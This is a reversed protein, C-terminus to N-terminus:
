LKSLKEILDDARAMLDAFSQQLSAWLQTAVETCNPDRRGVLDHLERARELGISIGTYWNVLDRPMPSPLLGFHVGVSRYIPIYDREGRFLRYVPMDSINGAAAIDTALAGLLSQNIHECLGEMEGILAGAVNHRMRSQQRWDGISNAVFGSFGGVVGGAIAGSIQPWPIGLL